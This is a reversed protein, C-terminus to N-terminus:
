ITKSERVAIFCNFIVMLISKEVFISSGKEVGCKRKWFM